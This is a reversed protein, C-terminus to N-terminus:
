PGQLRRDHCTQRPQALLFRVTYELDHDSPKRLRCPVFSKLVWGFGASGESTRCKQARPKELVGGFGGTVLSWGLALRVGLRPLGM